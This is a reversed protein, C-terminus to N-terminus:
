RNGLNLSLTYLWGPNRSLHRVLAPRGHLSDLDEDDILLRSELTAADGLGVATKQNHFEPCAAGAAQTIQDRCPLTAIDPKEHVDVIRQVLKVDGVSRVVRAVTAELIVV